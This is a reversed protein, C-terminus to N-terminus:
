KNYGDFMGADFYVGQEWREIQWGLFKKIEEENAEYNMAMVDQISQNKMYEEGYEKLNSFVGTVDSCNALAAEFLPENENALLNAKTFDRAKLAM